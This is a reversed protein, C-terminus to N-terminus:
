AVTEDLDITGMNRDCDLYWPFGSRKQMNARSQIKDFANCTNDYVLHFAPHINHLTCLATEIHVNPM